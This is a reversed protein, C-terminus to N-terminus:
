SPLHSESVKPFLNLSLVLKEKVAPLARLSDVHVFMIRIDTNEYSPPPGASCPALKRKASPVQSEEAQLEWQNTGASGKRIAETMGTLAAARWVIELNDNGGLGPRHQTAQKGHEEEERQSAVRPRRLLSPDREEPVHAVHSIRKGIMAWRFWPNEDGDRREWERVGDM